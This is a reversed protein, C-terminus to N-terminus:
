HKGNQPCRPSCCRGEIPQACTPCKAGFGIVSVQPYLLAACDACEHIETLPQKGEHLGIEAGCNTCVWMVAM